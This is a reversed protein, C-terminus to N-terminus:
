RTSSATSPSRGAGARASCTSASCSGYRNACDRRGARRGRAAAVRVAKRAGLSRDPHEPAGRRAPRGARHDGARGDRSDRGLDRPRLPLRRELPRPRGLRCSRPRAGRPLVSQGRGPRAGAARAGGAVRRSGRARPAARAGSDGGLAQLALEHSRHPYLRAALERLGSSQPRSRSAAHRRAPRGGGRDSRVVARALAAVDSRDLARRRGCRHGAARRRAAAAARRRGRLDSVPAGRALAGRAARGRRARADPRARQGPVPLARRWTRGCPSRRRSAPAAQLAAGSRRGVRRALRAPARPLALVADVRRLLRLAGGAVAGTAGRRDDGRDTAARRPASEQRDRGRRRDLRHRGVREHGARRCGDGARDRGDERRAVRRRRNEANRGRAGGRVGRGPRGERETDLSRPEGVSFLGEVLRVTEAGALVSGAGGAAQLRSAVNVADGVAGYEVRSGAGVPGVVVTGTDVGVRAGFGTIGFSREVEGAYARLEEAIQLAARLAREPDDEHATPAGFLALMGDGALDKVTGGFGEVAHVMRAVADGILLRAEEPDLLEGLSTSGILDAGLATVVRRETLADLRMSVAGTHM